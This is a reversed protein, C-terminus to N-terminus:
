SIAERSSVLFHHQVLNTEKKKGKKQASLHSDAFSWSLQCIGHIARPAYKPFMSIIVVGKVQKVFSSLYGAPASGRPGRGDSLPAPPSVKSALGYHPITPM